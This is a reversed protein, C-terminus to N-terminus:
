TNREETSFLNLNQHFCELFCKSSFMGFCGRWSRVYSGAISRKSWRPATACARRPAIWSFDDASWLLRQRVFRFSSLPTQVFIHHIFWHLKLGLQIPFLNMVWLKKLRNMSHGDIPRLFSCRRGFHQSENCSSAECRTRISIGQKLKKKFMIAMTLTMLKHRHVAM